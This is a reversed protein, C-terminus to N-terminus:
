RGGEIILRRVGDSLLGAVEELHGGIKEIEPFASIVVEIRDTEGNDNKHKQKWRIEDYPPCGEVSFTAGTLSMRGQDVGVSFGLMLKVFGDAPYGDQPIEFRCECCNVTTDEEAFMELLEGVETPTNRPTEGV